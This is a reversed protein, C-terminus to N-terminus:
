FSFKAVAAANQLPDIVTEFLTVTQLGEDTRTILQAHMAPATGTVVFLRGGPALQAAFLPAYVPLSGTLVIADWAGRISGPAFADAIQLNIEPTAIQALASQALGAIEANIELSTVQQALCALCATLYGSGTGIELVRERGALAIAQLIRGIMKPPLMHQGAPLPIATDAFAAGAFRAPVFLERRVSGMTDLVTTDLVDWARVQQQIMQERAAEMAM